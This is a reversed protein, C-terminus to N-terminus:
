AGGLTPDPPPYPSRGTLYPLELPHAYVPADWRRALEKLAGVHDFHGHTLVIAAPRAGWGFREAAADVIRQTSGPMGADILVWGRDGADPTGYFFVNVIATRLYAVDDTVRRPARGLNPALRASTVDRDTNSEM